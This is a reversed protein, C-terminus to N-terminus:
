KGHIAAGIGVGTRHFRRIEAIGRIQAKPNRRRHEPGAQDVVYRVSRDQRVPRRLRCLFELEPKAAFRIHVRSACDPLESPLRLM